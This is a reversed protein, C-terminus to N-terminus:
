LTRNYPYDITNDNDDLIQENTVIVDVESPFDLTSISASNLVKFTGKIIKGKMLGKEDYSVSKHYYNGDLGFNNPRKIIKLDIDKFIHSTYISPVQGLKDFEEILVNPEDQYRESADKKLSAICNSREMMIGYLDYEIIDQFKVLDVNRNIKIVLNGSENIIFYIDRSGANDNAKIYIEDESINFRPSEYRNIFEKVIENYYKNTGFKTTKLENLKEESM